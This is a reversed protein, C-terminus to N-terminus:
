DRRHQRPARRHDIGRGDAADAHQELQAPEPQGQRPEIALRGNSIPSPTSATIAAIRHIGHAVFSRTTVVVGTGGGSNPMVGAGTLAPPVAHRVFTVNVGSVSIPSIPSVVFPGPGGSSM